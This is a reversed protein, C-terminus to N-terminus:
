PKQLHRSRQFDAEVEDFRMLSYNSLARQLYLSQNLRHNTKDIALAKTLLETSESYEKATYKEDSATILNELTKSKELLNKAKESSNLKVADNLHLIANKIDGKNYCLLGMLYAIQNSKPDIMNIEQIVTEAEDFDGAYLLKEAKDMKEKVKQETCFCAVDSKVDNELRNILDKLLDDRTDLIKQQIQLNQPELYKAANLIKFADYLENSAYKLKALSFFIIKSFIESQFKCRV